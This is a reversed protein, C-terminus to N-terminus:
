HKINKVKLGLGALGLSLLGLVVLKHSIKDSFNSSKSRILSSGLLQESNALLLSTQFEELLSNSRVIKGLLLSLLHM